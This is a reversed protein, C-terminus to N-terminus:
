GISIVGAQDATLCSGNVPFSEEHIGCKGCGLPPKRGKQPLEARLERHRSNVRLPETQFKARCVSCQDGKVISKSRAEFGCFSLITYAMPPSTARWTSCNRREM